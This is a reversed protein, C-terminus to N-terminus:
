RPPISPISPQSPSSNTQSNSNGRVALGAAVAGGALAAGILLNRKLHSHPKELPESPASQAVTAPVENPLATESITQQEYDEATLVL